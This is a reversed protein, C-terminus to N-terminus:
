RYQEAGGRIARADADSMPQQCALLNQRMRAVSKSAVSPYVPFPSAKLLSLLASTASQGHAEAWAALRARRGANEATDYVSGRGAGSAYGGALPSWALVALGRARCFAAADPDDTMSVCGSWPPKTWAYLSYQPSTMLPPALGADRCAAALAGLREHHWNSAGWARIMGAASFEALSAAIESLATTHDDRHLMYLDVSETGLRSLSGELDSRLAARGLRHPALVPIPHGGKTALFLGSRNGRARMWKGFLRETGGAQYSAALDFATLGLEALGDLYAFTEKPSSWPLRVVEGLQATGVFLPPLSSLLNV